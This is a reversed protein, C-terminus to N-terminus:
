KFIIRAGSYMIVKAVNANTKFELIGNLGIKSFSVAEM